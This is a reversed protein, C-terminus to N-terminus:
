EQLLPKLASVVAIFLTDKIKQEIPLDEYPVICPHEKKEPDKSKGYKWSDAIKDNLWQDHQTSAPADPNSLRFVVGALASKIQWDPAEEWSPQSNDGILQCFSRNVEHALQAVQEIKM